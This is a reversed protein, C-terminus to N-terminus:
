HFGFSMNSGYMYIRTFFITIHVFVIIFYSLLGVGIVIALVKLLDTIIVFWCVIIAMLLKLVLFSKFSFLTRPFYRRDNQEPIEEDEEEEDDEQEENKDEKKEEDDKKKKKKEKEKEKKDKEEEEKEKEPEEHITDLSMGFYGWDEDPKGM